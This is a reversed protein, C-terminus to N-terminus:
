VSPAHEWTVEGGGGGVLGGHDPGGRAFLDGVGLELCAGSLEGVDQDVVPTQPWALGDRHDRVVGELHDLDVPGREAGTKVDRRDVMVQRRVLRRVDDSVAAGPGQEDGGRHGIVDVDGRACVRTHLVAHHEAARQLAELVVPRQELAFRGLRGGVLRATMVEEVGGAGGAPGLADAHVRRLTLDVLNGVGIGRHEAEEVRDVGVADVEAGRRQVVSGRQPEASHDVGDTPGHDEHVPEVRLLRQPEDLLVLDRM